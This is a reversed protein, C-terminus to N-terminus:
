ALPKKHKWRRHSWLWHEPHELIDEEMIKCTQEMIDDKDMDKANETVILTKVEYYGRKVKKVKTSIVAMDLKKAIVAYGPMFATERGLFTTWYANKPSAPNQDSIFAAILPRDESERLTFYIKEMPVPISGFRGRKVKMFREMSANSLKKYVGFTKTKLILPGSVIAWEWNGKHTMIGMIKRKEAYLRDIEPNETLVYRKKLEKESITFGKITEVIVDFLHRYFKKEIFLREQKTKNPFCSDLNERVVKKRYGLVKYGILYLVNSIGYLMFFPLRSFLMLLPILIWKTVIMYLVKAERLVVTIRDHNRYM